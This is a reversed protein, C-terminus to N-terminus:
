CSEMYDLQSNHAYSWGQAVQVISKNFNHLKVKTEILGALTIRHKKLYIRMEMQKFPNNLARVTWVLWNM